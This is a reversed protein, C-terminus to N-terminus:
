SVMQSMIEDTCISNLVDTAWHSPSLIAAVSDGAHRLLRSFPASRPPQSDEGRYKEEWCVVLRFALAQRWGVPRIQLGFKFITLYFMYRNNDSIFTFM